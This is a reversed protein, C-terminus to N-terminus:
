IAETAPKHLFLTLVCSVRGMAVNTTHANNSTFLDSKNTPVHPEMWFPASTTRPGRVFIQETHHITLFPWISNRHYTNWLICETMIHWENGMMLTKKPSERGPPRRLSSRLYPNTARACLALCRNVLDSQDRLIRYVALWTTHQNAVLLSKHRNNYHLYICLHEKKSSNQM